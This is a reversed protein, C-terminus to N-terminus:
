GIGPLTIIIALGGEPVNEAHITGGFDEIIKKTIALGLGSGSGPNNRSADSRYFVDFLRGVNDDPVGPGDDTISIVINSGNGSCIIKSKIVHNMKYKVSNGLINFLVNRFQVIDINAYLGNHKKVLTVALGKNEYEGTVEDLFDDLVDGIEVRELRLPFENIDLKSFLFLQNIIHELDNAKSKITDIYKKQMQPTAAIGKEIGEIYAKISTLPTRLDHSIGAILEKRSEEDKQRATVMDSLRQAMENFDDCILKFEDNYDYQIRYDLNDDRIEHVGSVLVEISTTIRRTILRTLARNTILIIVISLIFILIGLYVYNNLPRQLYLSFDASSLILTYKGTHASYVANNGEAILYNGDESLALKIVNNVDASSPYILNEGEYVALTIGYNGYNRNLEDVDSQLEQLNIYISKETFNDVEGIASYFINGEVGEKPSRIDSIGTIGMLIFIVCTFMLSTLIIPMVLMLINSIFLRRKLTM